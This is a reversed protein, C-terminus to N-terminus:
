ADESFNIHGVKSKIHGTWDEPLIQQTLDVIRQNLISYFSDLTGGWRGQLLILADMCVSWKQCHYHDIMSQHLKTYHELTAIEAVPVQEIVCYSKVPHTHGEFEFTDLELLIHRTKLQEVMPSDFIINM